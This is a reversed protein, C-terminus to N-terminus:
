LQVSTLRHNGAQEHEGTRFDQDRSGTLSVFAVPTLLQVPLGREVGVTGVELLWHSKPSPGDEASDPATTLIQRM